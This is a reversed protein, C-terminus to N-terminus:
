ASLSSLLPLDERMLREAAHEMLTFEYGQKKLMAIVGDLIRLGNRGNRLHAFKKWGPINNAIEGAYLDYPHFYVIVVKPLSLISTAMQVTRLGLLKVYSLVLPVRIGGFCAIPFELIRRPATCFLFPETPLHWNNYGFRDFRLSPTVSSDYLFGQDALNCLGQTDILCNPSRYGRPKRNWIDCYSDWARRAEDATAPARQDHGFSHVAFEVEIAKAVATLAQAYRAAHKMVVFSTLPVNRRQLLSCLADLREDSEFLRIRQEPCWLDPEVDVSLCAIKQMPAAIM